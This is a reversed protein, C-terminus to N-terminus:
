FERRNLISAIGSCKKKSQQGSPGYTVEAIGLQFDQDGEIDNITVMMDKDKIKNLIKILERVTMPRNYGM